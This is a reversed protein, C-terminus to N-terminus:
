TNGVTMMCVPTVNPHQHLELLQRSLVLPLHLPLTRDGDRDADQVRTRLLAARVWGPGSIHQQVDQRVDGPNRKKRQLLLFKAIERLLGLGHVVPAQSGPKRAGPTEPQSPSLRPQKGQQRLRSPLRRRLPGQPLRGGRPLQAPADLLDARHLLGVHRPVQVGPADGFVGDALPPPSPFTLILVARSPPSWLSPGKRVMRGAENNHLNTLYRLDRGKESSDVFERSFMRGFEVNDSCGGWHWDPGGPGRRRYDCTCSEIAGESCSRAVAHTVGASTIAFVFATERCGSPFCWFRGDSM